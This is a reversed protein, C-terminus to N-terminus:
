RKYRRVLDFFRFLWDENVPEASVKEESKIQNYAGIIVSEINQQKRIEQYSLRNGTRKILEEASTSDISIKGEDYMTPLNLNKTIAEGITEIEKAKAKAMRKIHMPEYIKGIGCSISEVLKTLPEKVGFFDSIKTGNIEFM